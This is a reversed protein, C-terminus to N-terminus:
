EKIIKKRTFQGDSTEVSLIYIGNKYNNIDLIIKNEKLNFKYFVIKGDVSSITLNKMKQNGCSITVLDRTPNPYVSIENEIIDDKSKVIKGEPNSSKSQATCAEIRASFNSGPLIHTNPSLLIYDGAKMTVTKNVGVNYNTNAVIWNSRKYIISNNTEPTSLTINPQCVTSICNLHNPPLVFVTLSATTACRDPNPTFTYTTTVTNNITSPSWTGAIGNVSTSPLIPVTSGQCVFGLPYFIPVTGPNIVNINSSISILCGSTNTFTYTITHIGLGASTANFSYIGNNNVVGNSDSSFVGGSTAGILYNSLNSIASNSCIETPLNFSLGNLPILSVNDLYNYTYLAGSIVSVTCSPNQIPATLLNSVTAPDSLGGGVYLYEEGAISGTTFTFVIHNWGNTITSYTTSTFLMNPNSIPMYSSMTPVILDKSLYAQPKIAYFSGSESLSMDFSLQYTTNPLLPNKLKTRISENYGPYIIMGVYGIGNRNDTEYGLANCPTQFSPLDSDANFYETSEITHLANWSCVIGNFQGAATPLGNHEEFNGNLVLDCSNTVATCSPFDVFVYVYTINGRQEAGNVPVYRLLHLGPLSSTFNISTSNIGSNTSLTTPMAITATLDTLCEFRVANATDNTLLGTLVITSGPTGVFSYSGNNLGDNLGVVTIGNLSTNYNQYSNLATTNSGYSSNLSYGIDNLVNREETKLFRKTNIPNVVGNSQVNSMVFYSDDPYSLYCMDEFHSLSSGEFFCNPTYVPVTSTGVYKIANACTTQNAVCSNVNPQLISTTLNSNFRYNYMSCGGSNTILFQSEDNTKLFRDYRSFNYGLGLASTGDSKILSAFGLAHTVEHLVVTYLDFTGVPADISLNTNWIINNFNFSMLGHYFLKSTNPVPITSYLPRAFNSYSDKGSIITKWLENDAIGGLTINSYGPLNYFSTALGLATPPVNLINTINRVWIKVRTTNNPDKLPSIIFNTLDNFVQCVVARRAIETVDTTSEMGCGTEFYLDFMGSSCILTSKSSIGNKNYDAGTKIDELKYINGYQDVVNDFVGNPTLNNNITPLGKQGFGVVGCFLLLFIYLNKM